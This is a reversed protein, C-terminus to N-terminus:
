SAFCASNVFTLPNLAPPPGSTVYGLARAGAAIKHLDVNPAVGTFEDKLFKTTENAVFGFDANPAVDTYPPLHPARKLTVFWKDSEAISSYLQMSAGPPNCRDTASQVVLLPATGTEVVKQTTRLPPMLAGSLVEVARFHLSPDLYPSEFALAAVTDGGDSQGALAIKGPQLLGKVVACGTGTANAGLLEHIVFAVDAPQNDMDSETDADGEALITSPNTDPFIPAAVVFGAKVWSDLLKSYAQPTLDYGHAFVVLPYPAGRRYAGADLTELVGVSPRITPYRIETVLRRGPASVGTVFNVTPRTQDVFTCSAVGVFLKPVARQASDASPPNRTAQVVVLVATVVAVL